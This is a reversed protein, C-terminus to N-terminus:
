PHPALKTPLIRGLKGFLGNLEADSDILSVVRERRARSDRYLAITGPQVARLVEGRLEPDALIKRLLRKGVAQDRHCASAKIGAGPSDRWHLEIAQWWGSLRPDSPDLGSLACFRHSEALVRAYFTGQSGALEVAQEAAPLAEGFRSQLVLREARNIAFNALWNHSSPDLAVIGDYLADAEDFRGLADYAAVMADLTWAEDESLKLIHPPSTKIRAGAELAGAYDGAYVKAEAMRSLAELDHTNERYRAETTAMHSAFVRKMGAGAAEELQPWISEYTRDILLTILDSPNPEAIVLRMALKTDGAALAPRVARQRVARRISPPLNDFSGARALALAAPEAGAARTQALLGVWFDTNMGAFEAPSNREIIHEVHEVFAPYDEISSASFAALVDIRPLLESQGAEVFMREAGSLAELAEQLRREAVACTGALFLGAAIPQMQPSRRVIEGYYASRACGDPDPLKEATALGALLAKHDFQALSATSPITAPPEAVASTTFFAAAIVGLTERGLWQM